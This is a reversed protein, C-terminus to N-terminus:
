VGNTSSETGKEEGENNVFNSNINKQPIEQERQYLHVRIKDDAKVAGPLVELQVDGVFRLCFWINTL